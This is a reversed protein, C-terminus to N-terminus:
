LPVPYKSKITIANLQKYDVCLRWTNDKKKVLLVSSSFPSNSRQIIGSSLMEQVQREIEDKMAPAFRYPRSKVPQAGAILPIAHDCSRPPPLASPAQFLDVFDAILQEIEPPTSAQIKADISVEVSCVQVVTGEPLDPRIGYLVAASNNYPISLWRNKWHVQMPSFLELWDLGLIMDYNSLALVKLDSHFILGNSSWQANPIQSSCCLVSGNAVKVSLPAPVSQIGQLTSALSESVFTHSSGSDVLISVEHGRLQGLLCMTRPGPCGSVAALSLTLFLQDQQLEAASAASHHDSDMQFLEFVEQLAHLQITDACKHDKSWKEACFQCLGKARRYARLARWREDTTHARAADMSRRDDTTSSSLKAQKSPPAPLPLPTQAAQRQHFGFDSRSFEKKKFPPAVEEQLRALVFATDLTAPRQMLVPSKFEPKLGDIFKMTYHLPDHTDEYANLQDVLSSFQDIYDLVSGSQRITLLQRVLLEHHDRGFRDLVM